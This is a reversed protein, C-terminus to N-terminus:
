EHGLNRYGRKHYGSTSRIPFTTLDFESLPSKKEKDSQKNIPRVFTISFISLSQLAVTNGIDGSRSACTPRVPTM